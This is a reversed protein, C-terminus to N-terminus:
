RMGALRSTSAALAAGHSREREGHRQEAVDSAEFEALPYEGALVDGHGDSMGAHKPGHEESGDGHAEDGHDTHTDAAQDPVGRLPWWGASIMM